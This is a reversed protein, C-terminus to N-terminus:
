ETIISQTTFDNNDNCDEDTLVGDCDNDNDRELLGSNDDDCDEYVVVGDCDNDNAQELLTSDDDDCDEDTLVGDCDGDNSQELLESNNDDCDVDTLVDDCDADNDMSTSNEDEDDCDLANPSYQRPQDCSQIGIGITGYSDGDMDPFWTLVDIANNEDIEGDCDNDREDCYETANPFDTDLTDDCDNMSQVYNEPQSCSVQFVDFNGYSDGDLDQFWLEADIADGEDVDGDCDNDEGDCIEDINPAIDANIDDCDQGNSVYQEPTECSLLFQNINGYGDGDNDLFWLQTDDADGENVDGDCDNDEGDCVETQNPHFLLITTTATKAIKM